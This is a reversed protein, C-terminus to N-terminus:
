ADIDAIQSPAASKLIKDADRAESFPAQTGWVLRMGRNTLGYITNSGGGVILSRL